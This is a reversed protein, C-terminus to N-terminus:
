ALVPPKYEPAAKLFDEAAIAERSLSARWPTAEFLRVLLAHEADDVVIEVGDDPLKRGRPGDDVSAADFRDLLKGHTRREAATIRHEDHMLAVYALSFAAATAATFHLLRM